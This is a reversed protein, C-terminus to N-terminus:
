AFVKPRPKGDQALCIELRGDRFRYIGLMTKGGSSVDITRPDASPNLTFTADAVKNMERFFTYKNGDFVIKKLWAQGDGGGELEMDFMVWAGTLRKMEEEATPPKDNDASRLGLPLLGVAFVALLCTIRM